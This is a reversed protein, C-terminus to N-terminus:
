RDSLGIKSCEKGSSHPLVGTVGGLITGSFSWLGPDGDFTQPNRLHGVNGALM